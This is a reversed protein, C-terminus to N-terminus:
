RRKEDAVPALFNAVAAEYREKSPTQLVDGEDLTVPELNIAHYSIREGTSRDKFEKFVGSFAVLKGKAKIFDNGMKNRGKSDLHWTVFEDLQPVYLLFERGATHSNKEAKNGRFAFGEIEQYLEGDNFTEVEPSGDKWRIGHFRVKCVIAEMEKLFTDDGIQLTGARADAHENRKVINSSGQLLKVRRLYSVSTDDDLFEDLDDGQEIPLYTQETLEIM